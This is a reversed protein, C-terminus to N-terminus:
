NKGNLIKVQGNETAKTFEIYGEVDFFDARVKPDASWEEKCREEIPLHAFKNLGIAEKPIQAPVAAPTEESLQKAMAAMSVKNAALLKVAAEPGTTKGDFMMEKILDQQDAGLGEGMESISKIRDLESQQGQNLLESEEKIMPTDGKKHSVDMEEDDSCDVTENLIQTVAEIIEPQDGNESYRALFKLAKEVADPMELFKNLFGTAEASLKVDPMFFKHGLFGNENAAPEDVVDAAFLQKVRAVPRLEKGDEDKKRTGDEELREQREMDFVISAGFAKPDEKALSIVYVALDGGPASHSSASIHLDALARQGDESLRFDKARGLLTGLAEGSMNPHGFRSKLGVDGTRNGQEIVQELTTLDIDVGHGLAEGISIVAFGEIVEKKEDVALIGRSVNSRFMTRNKPM